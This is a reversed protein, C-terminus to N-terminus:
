EEDQTLCDMFQEPTLVTVPSKAYDRTNRTIICDVRSRIATEIMVADEFDSVDSSIAHFVDDATSDLMGVITLLQNLKTRSEHDSHTCRHMLYYIDTAAKATICGSFLEAAAARFVSRAIEAFPERSQLFDMVVCTDILAKM